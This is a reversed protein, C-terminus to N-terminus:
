AISALMAKTVEGDLAKGTQYNCIQDYCYDGLKLRGNSAQGAIHPTIICNSLKRLPNNEAMPEPDTVDLCACKLKGSLLAEALAMEDVLTGRATNILIAGDPMTALSERNVIHYTSPLQPAHLSVVQSRAFVDALEVKEVGVEAMAEASIGPDFAIVKVAFNRLLEAYHKGAFGFGVIGVTIGYLETVGTRNWGHGHAANNLFFFNKLSAITLGLATESVGTSLVKAGSLVRIGRDYLEDTVIPKVSGAGHVVLKLNPAADLLDKTLSPTGWSTVAIDAGQLLSKMTEPDTSDTENFVVEGLTRIKAETEPTIITKALSRTALVAIKM